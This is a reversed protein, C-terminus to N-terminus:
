YDLIISFEWYKTDFILEWTHSFTKKWWVSWSMTIWTISSSWKKIDKIVLPNKEDWSYFYVWFDNLFTNDIKTKILTNWRLFDFDYKLVSGSKSDIISDIKKDNNYIIYEIVDWTLTTNNFSWTYWSFSIDDLLHTKYKSNLKYQFFSWTTFIIEYDTIDKWLRDEFSSIFNSIEDKQLDAINIDFSKTLAWISVIWTIAIIAVVVLLEVFTFWFKNKLM